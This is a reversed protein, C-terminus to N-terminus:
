SRGSGCVRGLRHRCLVEIQNVPRACAQGIYHSTSVAAGSHREIIMAASGDREMRRSPNRTYRQEVMVRSQSSSEIDLVVSRGHQLEVITVAFKCFLQRLLRAACVPLTGQYRAAPWYVIASM